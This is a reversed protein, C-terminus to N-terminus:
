AASQTDHRPLVQELSDLAESFSLNMRLRLFSIVDGGARCGFCHFTRTEPFVVFSPDRDEHFPCRGVLNRGSARLEVYQAIFDEIPIAEKIRSIRAALEPSTVAVPFAQRKPPAAPAARAAELLTEFVERSRGLRVFFDTVDGGNGAEAPLDIIKARPILAAVRDAGRRGAEDRDFCIYVEPIPFFDAAWEARFSAAGGTSTVAPFGQAELVLRDFEGECIIIREPKALVTEWGYLEGSSRPMVYMKPVDPGDEPDRALKFFAIERERNSIPITIRLGSWGLLHRHILDDPIGRANLYARIRDPLQRHYSLALEHLNPDTMRSLTLCSNSASFASLNAPFPM